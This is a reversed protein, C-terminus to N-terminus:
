VSGALQEMRLYDHLSVWRPNRTLKHVLYVTAGTLVALKLANVRAREQEQQMRLAYALDSEDARQKRDVGTSLYLLAYAIFVLTVLLKAAISLMASWASANMRWATRVSVILSAVFILVFAPLAADALPPLDLASAAATLVVWALLGGWFGLTALAADTYDTYVVIRGSLGRVVGTLGLGVLLFLGVWALPALSETAPHAPKQPPGSSAQPPIAPAPKASQVPAPPTPVPPRDNHVPAADERPQARSAAVVESPAISAATSVTNPAAIPATTPTATPASPGATPKALRELQATRATTQDILAQVFAASGIPGAAEAVANRQHIWGLQEERLARRDPEGLGDIAAAYAANLAADADALRTNAHMLATYQADSLAPNAQACLTLGALVATLLLQHLSTLHMIDSDARSFVISWITRTSQSLHRRVPLIRKVSNV